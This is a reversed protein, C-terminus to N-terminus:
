RFLFALQIVRILGSFNHQFFCLFPTHMAM